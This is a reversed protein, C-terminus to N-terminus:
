VGADAAAAEDDAELAAIVDDKTKGGSLDIDRGLKLRAKVEAALEKKTWETYPQDEGEDDVEEDESDDSDFPSVAGDNGTHAAARGQEPHVFGDEAPQLEAGTGGERPGAGVAAPGVGPQGSQPAVLGKQQLDDDPVTAVGTHEGLMSQRIEDEMMKQAWRPDNSVETGDPMLFTVIDDAKTPM